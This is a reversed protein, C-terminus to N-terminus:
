SMEKVLWDSKMTSTATAADSNRVNAIDFRLRTGDRVCDIASIDYSNTTLMIRDDVPSSPSRKKGKTKVIKMKTSNLLKKPMIGPENVTVLWITTVNASAASTMKVTMTVPKTLCPIPKRLSKTGLAGQYRKIRRTGISTIENRVRGILRETRSNALM